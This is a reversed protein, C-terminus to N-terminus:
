DYLHFETIVRKREEEQKRREEEEQKRREEEKFAELKEKRLLLIRSEDNDVLTFEDGSLDYNYASGFGHSSIVFRNNVVKWWVFYTDEIIGTGDEFLEVINKHIHAPTYSFYFEEPMLYYDSVNEWCGVLENLIFEKM